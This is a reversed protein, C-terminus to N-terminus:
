SIMHFSVLIYFEEVKGLKSTRSYKTVYNIRSQFNLLKQTLQLVISRYEKVYVWESSNAFKDFAIKESVCNRINNFM